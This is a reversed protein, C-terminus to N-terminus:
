KYLVGRSGCKTCTVVLPRIPMEIDQKELCNHCVISVPEYKYVKYKRGYMDQWTKDEGAAKDPNDKDTKKQRRRYVLFFIILFIIIIIVAVISIIFLNSDEEQGSRSFHKTPHSDDDWPDTDDNGGVKGDMGLYEEYNTYTDVDPDDEADYPDKENLYHLIEWYDPMGDGDTDVKSEKVMHIVILTSGNIVPDTIKLTIKHTGESLTARFSIETSLLGELDSYWEYSHNEVLIENDPDYYSGQFDIFETTLFRDSDGPTIIEPIPPDPTNLIEFVVYQTTVGGNYDRVTVMIDKYTGVNNNNPKFSLEGTLTDFSYEDESLELMNMLNTEFYVSENDAKDYGIFTINYWEGEYIVQKPTYNLFPNDNIALVKIKLIDSVTAYGDNAIIELSEAGTWNESPVFDALGDKYFIVDINNNSSVSFTLPDDEIPDWFIHNLNFNREPVDEDIVLEGKPLYQNFSTKIQPPDNVGIIILELEFPNWMYHARNIGGKPDEDSVNIYVIENGFDDNPHRNFMNEKPRFELFKKSGEFTEQTVVKITINESNYINSWQTNDESLRFYLTDNDPDEFTTNLDIYSIPDDEYITYTKIGSPRAIPLTNETIIPGIFKDGHISTNGEAAKEVDEAYIIYDHEEGPILEKGDVTYKFVCGDTYDLDAPDVKKMAQPGVYESNEGMHGNDILITIKKPPDNNEDQYNVSYTFTDYIKGLPAQVKADTVVPPIMPKPNIDKISYEAWGNCYGEGWIYEGDGSGTRGYTQVYVALYFRLKPASEDTKEHHKYYKIPNIHGYKKNMNAIEEDDRDYGAVTEHYVVVHVETVFNIMQNNMHQNNMKKSDTIELTFSFNTEYAEPDETEIFWWDFLDTDSHVTQRQVEGFLEDAFDMVQNNDPTSTPEVTVSLSYEIPDNYWTYQCTSTLKIYYYTSDFAHISAKGCNEYDDVQTSVVTMLLAEGAFMGYVSIYFTSYWQTGWDNSYCNTLEITLNDVPRNGGDLSIKFLDHDARNVLNGTVTHPPNGGSIDDANTFENNPESETFSNRAAGSSGLPQAQSDEALSREPIFWIIGSTGSLLLCTILITSIMM